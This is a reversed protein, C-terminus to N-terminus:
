FFDITVQFLKEVQVVDARLVFVTVIDGEEIMTNGSPKTIKGGKLIAGVIAGPPWEIESLRRGAVPSTGLVQAEIIEAEADGISYVAKIRGHRIHRLISSVTTARPNIYADISLPSLLGVM